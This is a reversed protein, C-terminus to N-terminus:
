TISPNNRGTDGPFLVTACQGQQNYLQTEHSLYINVREATNNAHCIGSILLHQKTQQKLTSMKCRMLKFSFFFVPQM